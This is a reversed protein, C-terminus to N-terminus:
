TLDRYPGVTAIPVCKLAVYMVVALNNSVKCMVPVVPVLDCIGRMVEVDHDPLITNSPLFYLVVTVLRDDIDARPLSLRGEQEAFQQQRERILGRLADICETTSGILPTTEQLLCLKRCVHLV